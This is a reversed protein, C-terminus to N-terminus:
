YNFNFAVPNINSTLEIEVLGREDVGERLRRYGYLSRGKEDLAEGPDPLGGAQTALIYHAFWAVNALRRWVTALSFTKPIQNVATIAKFSADVDSFNLHLSPYRLTYAAMVVRLFGSCNLWLRRGETDYRVLPVGIHLIYLRFAAFIREPSIQPLKEVYDNGTLMMLAVYTEVINQFNVGVTAAITLGHLNIARWMANIDVYTLPKGDRWHQVVYVRNHFRVSQIDIKQQLDCGELNLRHRGMLCALVTDGDASYILINYDHCLTNAVYACYYDGECYQIKLEEPVDLVQTGRRYRRYENPGTVCLWRGDPVRIDNFVVDCIHRAIEKKFDRNQLYKEWNEPIVFDPLSDTPPTQCWQAVHAPWGCAPTAPIESSAKRTYKPAPTEDDHAFVLGVLNPREILEQVYAASRRALKALTPERRYIYAAADMVVVIPKDDPLEPHQDMPKVAYWDAGFETQADTFLSQHRTM